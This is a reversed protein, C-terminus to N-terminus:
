VRSRFVMSGALSRLRLDLFVGTEPRPVSLMISVAWPKLYATTGPPFGKAVMAAEVRKLSELSLLDSLRRGDVLMMRRLAALEMGAGLDAEILFVSAGELPRTVAEPLDLVRADESHITGYLYSAPGNGRELQWLVGRERTPTRAADVASAALVMALTIIWASGFGGRRERGPKANMGPM